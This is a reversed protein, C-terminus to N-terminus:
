ASPASPRFASATPQCRPSAMTAVAGPATAMHNMARVDERQGIRAPKTPKRRMKLATIKPTEARAPKPATSTLKALMPTEEKAAVMAPTPTKLANTAREQLIDEAPATTSYAEMAKPRATAMATAEM